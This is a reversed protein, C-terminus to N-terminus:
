TSVFIALHIISEVSKSQMIGGGPFYNKEEKGAKRKYIILGRIM